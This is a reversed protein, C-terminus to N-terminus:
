HKDFFIKLNKRYLILLKKKIIKGRLSDGDLNIIHASASLRDIIADALTSDNLYDYWKEVPLQSIFITANNQYRDELIQLLAVRTQENMPAIGFDDIILLKNKNVQELFKVFTGELKTQVIKEILRLMGFYLTRYGLACAQKGLACALYSKGCGTPGTILINEARQIFSCDAFFVLQEREFNRAASCHVNELVSDYRLKSLRLYMKTRKDAKYKEEAHAMQALLEHSSPQQNVSLGLVSEYMDAMGHLKLKKLLSVTEERNIM